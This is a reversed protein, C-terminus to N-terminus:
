IKIRHKEIISLDSNELNFKKDVHKYSNHLNLTTPTNPVLDGDIYIRYTKDYMVNNFIEAFKQDGVRPSAFTYIVIYKQPFLIKLDLTAFTAIAGGLSHGCVFVIENYNRTSSIIHSRIVNYANIFGKHGQPIPDYNHLWSINTKTFHINSIWDSISDTGKFVITSTNSEKLIFGRVYPLVNATDLDDIPKNFKSELRNGYIDDIESNSKYANEALRLALPKEFSV